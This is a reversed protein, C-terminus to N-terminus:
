AKKAAETAAAIRCRAEPPLSPHALACSAAECAIRRHEDSWRLPLRFSEQVRTGEGRGGEFQVTCVLAQHDSTLM